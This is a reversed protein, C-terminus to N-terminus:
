NSPRYPPNVREGQHDRALATNAYGAVCAINAYSTSINTHLLSKKFHHNMWKKRTSVCRNLMHYCTRKAPRKKTM